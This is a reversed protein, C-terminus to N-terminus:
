PGSLYHSLSSTAEVEHARRETQCCGVYLITHVMAKAVGTTSYHSFCSIAGALPVSRVVGLMVLPCEEESNPGM